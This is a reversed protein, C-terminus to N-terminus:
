MASEGLSRRRPASDWASAARLPHTRSAASPASSRHDPFLRERRANWGTRSQPRAASAPPWISRCRPIRKRLDASPAASAGEGRAAERVGGVLAVRAQWGSVVSLSSHADLSAKELDGYSRGMLLTEYEDAARQMPRPSQALAVSVPLILSTFLAAIRLDMRIRRVEM